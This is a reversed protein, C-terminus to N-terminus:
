LFADLGKRQLIDLLRQSPGSPHKEGMEWQRVTSPSTNLVTAFVTQSMKHHKRLAKIDEASLEPATLSCLAEYERMRRQDIFDAKRLDKATALVSELIKSSSKTM